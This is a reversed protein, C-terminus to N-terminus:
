DTGCKEVAVRRSIRGGKALIGVMQLLLNPSKDTVVVRTAIVFRKAVDRGIFYVIPSSLRYHLAASSKFSFRKHPTIFYVLKDGPRRLGLSNELKDGLIGMEDSSM